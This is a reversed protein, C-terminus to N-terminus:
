STGNSESSCAMARAFLRAATRQDLPDVADAAQGRDGDEGLEAVDAAKLVRAIDDAVAAQIDGDVLGVIVARGPVEGALSWRRQAPRQVFRRLARAERGAGVAGVVLLQGGPDTAVPGAERERALQEFPGVV